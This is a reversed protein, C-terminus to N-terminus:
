ATVQLDTTRLTADHIRRRFEQPGLNINGFYLMRDLWASQWLWMLSDIDPKAMESYRIFQTYIRGPKRYDPINRRWKVTPNVRANRMIINIKRLAKYDEIAQLLIACLLKQMAEEFALDENSKAM